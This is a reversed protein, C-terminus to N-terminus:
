PSIKSEEHWSRVNQTSDASPIRLVHSSNTRPLKIDLGARKVVDQTLVRYRLHSHLSNYIDELTFHIYDRRLNTKNFLTNNPAHHIFFACPPQFLTQTLQFNSNRSQDIHPGGTNSNGRPIHSCVSGIEDIWEM